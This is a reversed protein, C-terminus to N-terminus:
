TYIYNYFIQMIYTEDGNILGEYDELINQKVEDPSSGYNRFYTGRAIQRCYTKSFIVKDNKYDVYVLNHIQSNIIIGGGPKRSRISSKIYMDFANVTFVSEIVACRINKHNVYGLLKFKGSLFIEYYKKDNDRNVVEPKIDKFELEWQDNIKLIRDPIYFKSIEPLLLDSKFRENPDREIYLPKNNKDFFISNYKWKSERNIIYDDQNNIVQSIWLKEYESIDNKQAYVKNNHMNLEPRRYSISFRAPETIFNKIKIKLPLGNLEAEDPESIVPYEYPEKENFILKANLLLFLFSFIFIIKKFM